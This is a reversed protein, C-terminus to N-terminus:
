QTWRLSKLLEIVESGDVVMTPTFMDCYITARTQPGWIIGQNTHVYPCVCTPSSRVIHGHLVRFADTFGDPEVPRRVLYSFENAAFVIADRLTEFACLPGHPHPRLTTKGVVYEVRARPPAFLSGMNGYATYRVLKFATACKWPPQAQYAM